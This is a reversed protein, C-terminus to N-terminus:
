DGTCHGGDGPRRAVRRSVKNMTAWVMEWVAPRALARGRDLQDSLAWDAVSQPTVITYNLLKDIINVAQGPHYAWYSMVSTIIQRRALESENGVALLRKRHKEISSLIHSLSKSGMHCICTVFVDVAAIAGDVGQAEALSSVEDLVQQIPGEEDTKEKM